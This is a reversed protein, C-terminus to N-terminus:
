PEMTNAPRFQRDAYTVAKKAEGMLTLAEAKAMDVMYAVRDNAPGDIKGAVDTLRIVGRVARVETGTERLLREQSEVRAAVDDNYLDILKEILTVLQDLGEREDDFLAQQGDFYRQDISTHSRRLMYLAAVAVFRQIRAEIDQVALGAGRRCRSPM